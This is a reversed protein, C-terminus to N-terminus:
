EMEKKHLHGVHGDYVIELRSEEEEPSDGFDPHRAAHHFDFLALRELNRIAPKYTPDLAYAARYHRRALGDNMMYEELIGYLNHAVASHPNGLMIKKIAEEADFYNKAKLERIALETQSGRRAIEMVREEVM